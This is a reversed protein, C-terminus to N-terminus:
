RSQVKAEDPWFDNWSANPVVSKEGSFIKNKSRMSAGVFRQAQRIIWTPPMVSVTEDLYKLPIDAFIRGAYKGFPMILQKTEEFDDDDKSYNHQEMMSNFAAYIKWWAEHYRNDFCDERGGFTLGRQGTALTLLECFRFFSESLDDPTQTPHESQIEKMIETPIKTEMRRTEANCSEYAADQHGNVLGGVIRYNYIQLCHGVVARVSILRGIRFYGDAAIENTDQGDLPGEHLDVIVTPKSIM